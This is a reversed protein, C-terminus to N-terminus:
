PPAYIGEVRLRHPDKLIDLAKGYLRKQFLQACLFCAYAQRLAQGADLVNCPVELLALAVASLVRRDCHSSQSAVELQVTGPPKGVDQAGVEGKDVSPVQCEPALERPLHPLRIGVEHAVERGRGRRHMSSIRRNRLHGCIELLMQLGANSCRHGVLDDRAPKHLAADQARAADDPGKTGGGVLIGVGEVPARQVHLFYPQVDERSGTAM